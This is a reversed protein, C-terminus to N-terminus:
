SVSKVVVQVYDGDKLFMRMTVKPFALEKGVVFTDQPIDVYGTDVKISKVVDFANNESPENGPENANDSCSIIFFLLQLIFLMKMLVPTFVEFMKKM